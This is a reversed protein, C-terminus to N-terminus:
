LLLLELDFGKLLIEGKLSQFVEEIRVAVLDDMNEDSHSLPDQQLRYSLTLGLVLYLKSVRCGEQEKNECTERLQEIAKSMTNRVWDKQIVSETLQRRKFVRADSPALPVCVPGLILPKLFLARLLTEIKKEPKRNYAHVDDSPQRSALMQCIVPLARGYSSGQHAFFLPFSKKLSLGFIPDMSLDLYCLYSSISGSFNSFFNDWVGADPEEVGHRPSKTKVEILVLDQGESRIIMLDCSKENKNKDRRNGEELFILSDNPQCVNKALHFATNIEGMLGSCGDAFEELSNSANLLEHSKRVLENWSEDTAYSRIALLRKELCKLYKESLGLPFDQRALFEMIHNYIWPNCYFNFIRPCKHTSLTTLPCVFLDYIFPFAASLAKLSDAHENLFEGVTPRFFESILGELQQEHAAQLRPFREGLKTLLRQIVNRANHPSVFGVICFWGQQFVENAKLELNSDLAAFLRAFFQEVGPWLFLEKDRLQQVGPESGLLFCLHNLFQGQVSVGEIKISEPKGYDLMDVFGELTDVNLNDIDIGTM